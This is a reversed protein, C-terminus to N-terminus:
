AKIKELILKIIEDKNKSFANITIDAYKRYLPLRFEFVNELNSTRLGVIRRNREQHLRKKIVDLPVDIFILRGKEKLFNMLNPSLVASGGTSIVYNKLSLEQVVKEELEKFAKDGYEDILHQIKKNEKKEIYEDTDIFNMYLKKALEEGIVSKGAGAIGILIINNKM